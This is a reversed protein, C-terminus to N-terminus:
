EEMSYYSMLENVMNRYDLALGSDRTTKDQTTLFSEMSSKLIPTEQYRITQELVKGPYLERLAEKHLRNFRYKPHDMTVVIRLVSDRDKNVPIQYPEKFQSVIKALGKYGGRDIKLPVLLMDGKKYAANLSNITLITLAPATDIVIFDFKERLVDTITQIFLPQYNSAASNIKLEADVLEDSSPIIYLNEYNTEQVLDFIEERNEKLFKKLGKKAMKRILMSYPDDAIATALKLIAENASDEEDMEPDASFEKKYAKLLQDSGEPLDRSILRDSIVNQPDNDIVCVKYGREALLGALEATTVTKACGGKNNAVTIVHGEPM